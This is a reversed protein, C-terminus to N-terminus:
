EKIVGGAALFGNFFAASTLIERGYHKFCIKQFDKTVETLPVSVYKNFLVLLEEMTKALADIQANTPNCIDTTADSYGDSYKYYLYDDIKEAIRRRSNREGHAMKNM